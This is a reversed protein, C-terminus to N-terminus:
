DSTWFLRYPAQPNTACLYQFYAQRADDEHNLGWRRAKTNTSRLYLLTKVANAVSTTARRKTILEFNSATIRISRHHYWLSSESQGRTDRETQEAEDCSVM